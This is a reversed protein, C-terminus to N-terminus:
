QEKGLSIRINLEGEEAIKAAVFEPSELGFDIRNVPLNGAIVVKDEDRLVDFTGSVENTAGHIELDGVLEVQGPTGDDPVTSLDVPETITFTSTPYDDTHFISMRVNIDRRENDSSLERMDVTIEGANLTDNSINVTGEVAQTSGSTIRHEVPLIEAFTYGVSTLNNQDGRVVEWDGNVEVTAPEASSTNLGETKVGPGMILGYIVPGVVVVSLLLVLVVVISVITKQRKLM